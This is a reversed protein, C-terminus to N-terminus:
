LYFMGSTQSWVLDDTFAGIYSMGTYALTGEGAKVGKSWTGDYQPVATLLVLCAILLLKAVKLGTSSYTYVGKGEKVGAVFEGEYVDSNAYTYTGHGSCVNDVWGGLCCTFSCLRTLQRKQGEYKSGDPYYFTGQGHKKNHQWDGEYRAGSKFKYVGQLMSM